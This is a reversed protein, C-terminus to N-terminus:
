WGMRDLMRELSKINGDLRDLTKAIDAAEAPSVKPLKRTLAASQTRNWHLAGRVSNPTMM